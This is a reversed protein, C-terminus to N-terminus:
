QQHEQRAAGTSAECGDPYVIGGLYTDVEQATLRRNALACARDRWSELSVDWAILTRDTSGSVVTQGDPSFAVGNVWDAHGVFGEGLPRGAALDWLIVRDDAGGSVLRRGDSSIAADLVAATHAVLPQGVPQGSDVQWRMITGDRSASVLIQGDPTFALSTVYDTHGVLPSGLPERTAADWLLVRNDRGGSALLKGDPSFAVTLVGDEHGTLPAGLATGAEVDWVIVTGDDSGSALLRGDLSFAVGFVANSHGVLPEGRPQRTNVDWLRVTQDASASALLRGDPSFAVKAVPGLHGELVAELSHRQIDWLRVANDRGNRDGDASAVLTGDPSYAVSSIPESYGEFVQGLTRYTPSVDWLLVRGDDAGSVLQSGDASFAVSWVKDTNGGLADGVAAGTTADWLRISRDNSATALLLGSPDFALSTVWDTHDTTFRFLPQGTTVEWLIIERDAGSSALISGDPSFALGFVWNRHEPQLEAAPEGTDVQWLRVQSDAGGSALLRGDPSFVLRYVIDAHAQPLERLLEGSAADWLVIGGDARGAALVRGDPSVALSWVAAGAELPQGIAAGTSADWLRVTGDKSGSALVDNAGFAISNVADTHGQLSPYTPQGSAVDWVIVSRDWGASAILHSDPSFAVERASASHGHFFRSLHPRAQLGTLLSNRAEFTDAAALAQVSLLLSLDLRDLQTLATVALARSGSEQAQVNARNREVLAFLAFALAIMSFVALAVMVYRARRAARQRAALSAAVYANEDPKLALSKRQVLAEFQALRAGSALYSSDRGAKLWEDTVAALRQEVRLDDRSAEIWDKLQQWERILAEHALEVTPARTNPEHDFTLLRFRAFAEMVRLMVGKDSALMLVEEQLARRRTAELSDSINVLRLFLQRAAEQAAANLGAYIEDARRALAGSIGGIARYAELTLTNNQQKEFLETLAYQLLPLAGPEKNLDAIIATILEQEVPIGVREAPGRIAHALEIASLPLVVETYSRMLDGFGPYLLPRDYFDARLTIVLRLRSDRCTVATQLTQLFHAREAEPTLTFVEEFQDILLLLEGDAEPLVQQLCRHLGDDGARLRAPLDPLPQAAIKLLVAQLEDFPHAGPVIQGFFWRDSDEVVGQRLAPILGANALSSKGSGSPGVIAVFRGGVGEQEFRAALQEVLKERGFFDSADAEQFPRLGKYPNTPPQINLNVTALRETVVPSGQVEVATPFLINTEALGVSQRFDVALELPSLYRARFSKATARWIVRNISEPLDPRALQLPPVPEMLHLRMIETDNAGTFPLRGTLLEYLVIGLSYIDTQPTITQGLIQEPPTYPPSGLRLEKQDLRSVDILKIAIGFDALYANGEDDLLINDPKLDRHVVGQRHAVALAAAIQDLVRATTVTDLGGQQNLVARLSGGRLWRMVLYAGDPDRWYDYLPVIHFHELRAVLQAEAEFRRIFEPQSAYQPLIIKFAVERGVLVQNARYVAGFGGMNILELLEYGKITRGRLDQM